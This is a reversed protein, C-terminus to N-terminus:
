SRTVTFDVDQLLAIHDIQKTWGYAHLPDKLFDFGEYGEVRQEVARVVMGIVMM